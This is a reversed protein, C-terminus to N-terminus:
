KKFTNKLTDSHLTSQWWYKSVTSELIQKTIIQVINNENIIFDKKHVKYNVIKKFHNTFSNKYHLRRQFIYKITINGIKKM